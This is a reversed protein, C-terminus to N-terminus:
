RGLDVFEDLYFPFKGSTFAEYLPKMNPLMEQSTFDPNLDWFYDASDDSVSLEGSPTECALLTFNTFGQLENGDFTHFFGTGAVSFKCNLGTKTLVESKAHEAISIAGKPIAHMFAVKDKVPHTKRRYLLWGNEPSRIIMFLVSFPRLAIVDPKESMRRWLKEGASTLRYTGDDSKEVFGERIVIKLHYTFLKNDVDDPKLQSFTLSDESKLTTVIAKQIHHDLM